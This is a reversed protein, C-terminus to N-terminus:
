RIGRPRRFGPDGPKIISDEDVVEGTVLEDNVFVPALLGHERQVEMIDKALSERAEATPLKLRTREYRLLKSVSYVYRDTELGISAGLLCVDYDDALKVAQPESPPTDSLNIM